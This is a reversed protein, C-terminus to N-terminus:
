IGAESLPLDVTESRRDKTISLIMFIIGVIIFFGSFAISTSTVGKVVIQDGPCKKWADLGFSGSILGFICIIILAISVTIETVKEQNQYFVILSFVSTVLVGVTLGMLAVNLRIMYNKNAEYNTDMKGTNVAFMILMGLSFALLAIAPNWAMLLYIILGLAFGLGFSNVRLNNQVTDKGCSYTITLGTSIIQLIAAFAIIVYCVIIIGSVPTNKIKQKMTRVPEMLFDKKTQPYAPPPVVAQTEGVDVTVKPM